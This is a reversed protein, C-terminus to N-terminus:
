IEDIQSKLFFNKSEMKKENKIRHYSPAYFKLHFHGKSPQFGLEGDFTIVSLLLKGYILWHSFDTENQNIESVHSCFTMLSFLGFM